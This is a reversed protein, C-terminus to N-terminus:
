AQVHQWATTNDRGLFGHLFELVQLIRTKGPGEGQGEQAMAHPSKAVERKSDKATRKPFCTLFHISSLVKKCLSPSDLDIPEVEPRLAVKFFTICGERQLQEILACDRKFSAGEETRHM